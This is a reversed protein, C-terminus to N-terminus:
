TLQEFGSPAVNNPKPPPCAIHKNTKNKEEAQSNTLKESHFQSGGLESEQKRKMKKKPVADAARQDVSSGSVGKLKEQKIRDVDSGNALSVPMRTSANVASTSSIPKNTSTSSHDIVIKEQTHVSQAVPAADSRSSDEEKLVM